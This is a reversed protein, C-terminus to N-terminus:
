QLVFAQRSAPNIKILADYLALLYVTTNEATATGINLNVLIPSNMTSIGTLLASNTPLKECNTGVFFTAPINTSDAANQNISFSTYSMAMNAGFADHPSNWFKSLETLVGAKNIVTSIARQPKAIGSILFQYDGNGSTIDKSAAWTNPSNAGTGSLSLALSKVSTLRQGYVLSTFGATGTPVTQSAISVSQSKIYFNGEADVMQHVAADVEGGFDVVDYVLEVNTINFATIQATNTVISALSDLTIQVRCGPMMGLPVLHDAASFICPFPASFYAAQTGAAAQTIFGAGPAYDGAAMSNYGLAYALGERQSFNLKTTCVFNGWLNAQQISEVVTSGILSDIRQFHSYAPTGKVTGANATTTYNAKFRIYMSGPVLYGRQVLDIYIVAGDSFTSGSTPLGVIEQLQTGSPLSALKQSYNIEKPLVSM